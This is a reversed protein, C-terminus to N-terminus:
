TTELKEKPRNSLIMQVAMLSIMLTPITFGPMGNNSSTQSSSTEPNGVIFKGKMGISAHADVACTYNLVMDTSPTMINTMDTGNNYPGDTSNHLHIHIGGFDSTNYIWFSHAQTPADNYFIMHVCTNVPVNIQDKNFSIDDDKGSPAATISRTTTPNNCDGGVEVHARTYTPHALLLITTM